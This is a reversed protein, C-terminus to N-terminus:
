KIILRNTAQPEWGTGHQFSLTVQIERAPRAHRHQPFVLLELDRVDLSGSMQFDPYTNSDLDAYLVDGAGRFDGDGQADIALLARSTADVIEVRCPESVQVRLNVLKDADSRYYVEHFLPVAYFPSDLAQNANVVALQQHEEGYGFEWQATAAVKERWELVLPNPTTSGGPASEITLVVQRGPALQLDRRANEAHGNAPLVKVMLGTANTLWTFRYPDGSFQLTGHATESSPNSLTFRARAMENTRVRTVVRVPQLDALTADPPDSQKVAGRTTAASISVLGPQFVALAKLQYTSLGSATAFLQAQLYAALLDAQNGLRRLQGLRALHVRLRTPAPLEETASVWSEIRQWTERSEALHGVETQLEAIALLMHLARFPLKLNLCLQHAQELTEVAQRYRGTKGLLRAQLEYLEPELNKRGLARYLQLSKRLDNEVQEDPSFALRIRAREKLAEAQHTQFNEQGSLNVVRDVTALAEQTRGEQYLLRSKIVLGQFLNNHHPRAELAFLATEVRNWTNTTVGDRAAVNAAHKIARLYGRYEYQQDFPLREIRNGLAIAEDLRELFALHSAMQEWASGMVRYCGREVAEQAVPEILKLAELYRGAHGLFQAGRLQLAQSLVYEQSYCNTRSRDRTTATEALIAMQREADQFATYARGLKGQSEYMESLNELTAIDSLRFHYETGALADGGATLNRGQRNRGQELAREFHEVALDLNGMREQIRGMWFEMNDGSATPNEKLFRYANTLDGQFYLKLGPNAPNLLPIMGPEVEVGPQAATLLANAFLVLGALFSAFGCSQAANTRLTRM